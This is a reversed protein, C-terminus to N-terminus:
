LRRASAWGDSKYGSPWAERDILWWARTIRAAPLPAGHQIRRLAHTKQEGTVLILCHRHQNLLHSTMSVRQAPPKPAKTVPITLRAAVPELQGPFLSATHGDEGMGLMVLDFPLTCREALMRAYHMAAQGADDAYPIAHIHADPIPVHDLLARRAMTENREPHGGPLLREDGFWCHTKHWPLPCDRLLRYCREPTTGGALVWHFTGRRSVARRCATAIFRAARVAVAEATPLRVWRM